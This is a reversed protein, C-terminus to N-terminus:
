PVIMADRHERLLKARLALAQSYNSAPGVIVVQLNGKSQRSASFGQLRLEHVMKDASAPSQFAAVQVSFNRWGQHAASRQAQVSGPWQQRVLGFTRDAATWNGQRQQCLGIRYLVWAKLEGEQLSNYAAEWNREAQVYDGLWYCVNGLAAQIYSQTKPAPSLGLAQEYAARAQRLDSNATADNPKPRQELARGRLYMAEASNSGTPNEQLYRDAKQLALDYQQQDVAAFGTSLDEAHKSSGCGALAIIGAIALCTLKLPHIVKKSKRQSRM